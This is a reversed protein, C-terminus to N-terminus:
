ERKVRSELGRQWDGRGVESKYRGQTLHLFQMQLQHATTADLLVSIPLGHQWAGFLTVRAYLAKREVRPAATYALILLCVVLAFLAFILGAVVTGRETDSCMTHPPSSSDSSTSGLDPSERYPLYSNTSRDGVCVVVCLLM